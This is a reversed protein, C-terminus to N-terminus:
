RSGPMPKYLMQVKGSTAIRAIFPAEHRASFRSLRPLARVLIAAMEPGSLDGRTLVFAKVGGAVLAVLETERYRIRADKTIVAWGRRGVEALWEEDRANEPFHADHTHVEVGHARLATAIIIRGLSRDVFLPPPPPSPQKSRSSAASRKRSTL